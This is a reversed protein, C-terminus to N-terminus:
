LTINLGANARLPNLFSSRVYVSLKESLIYQIGAFGYVASGSYHSDFKTTEYFDNGNDDKTLQQEITVPNVFQQTFGVGSFPIFKHIRYALGLDLEWYMSKVSCTEVDLGTTNEVRVSKSSTYNYSALSVLSLHETLNKFYDAAIGLTFAPYDAAHTQTNEDSIWSKFDYHNVGAYASIGLGNIVQYGIKIGTMSNRYETGYNDNYSEIDDSTYEYSNEGEWLTYYNTHSVLKLKDFQTYEYFPSIFFSGKKRQGPSTEPDPNVGASLPRVTPTETQAMGYFCALCIFFPILAYTKKMEIFKHTFLLITLLYIIILQM